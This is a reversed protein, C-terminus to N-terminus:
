VKLPMCVFSSGFQARSIFAAGTRHENMVLWLWSSSCPQAVREKEGSNPYLSVEWGRWREEEEEEALLLKEGGAAADCWQLALGAPPLGAGKNYHSGILIRCAGRGKDWLVKVALHESVVSVPCNYEIFSVCKIMGTENYQLILPVCVTTSNFTWHSTM